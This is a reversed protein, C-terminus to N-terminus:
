VFSGPSGSDEGRQRIGQGLFMWRRAEASKCPAREFGCIHAVTWTPPVGPFCFYPLLPWCMVVVYFGIDISWTSRRDMAYYPGYSVHVSKRQGQVRKINADERLLTSSM